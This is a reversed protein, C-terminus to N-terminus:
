QSLNEALIGLLPESTSIDFETTSNYLKESSQVLNAIERVKMAISSLVKTTENYFQNVSPQVTIVDHHGLSSNTGLKSFMAFTTNAAAELNRLEEKCKVLIDEKLLSEKTSTHMDDVGNQDHNHILTTCKETSSKFPSEGLSKIGLNDIETNDIPSYSLRPFARPLNTHKVDWVEPSLLDLCVTHVTLWRNDLMFNRSSEQRKTSSQNRDADSSYMSINDISHGCSPDSKSPTQVEPDEINWGHVKGALLSLGKCGDQQFRTYESDVRIIRPSSVKEQAWKPLRSMSFKFWSTASLAGEQYLLRPSNKSIELEKLEVTSISNKQCDVEHFKTQRTLVQQVDTRSFLRCNQEIKQLMKSSLLEPLRWIFICGDGDVSVIHRCDPLAIIANTPEGYGVAEAIVEGNIFDIIYITRNSYSCVLYSCSPDMEIKVPDGHDGKQKFSRILKGTAICYSNINNDKEITVAVEMMPDIAIGYITGCSAIQHSSRAIQCTLGKISIDHLMVTRDASCSLIKSGDGSLKVSTVAASHDDIRGILAFNRKVDYLHIKCDKGSSALLYHSGSIEGFSIEKASMNFSLSLVEADHVHQLCTYDSTLLNFVHLNGKCDGAILLKGDPSVTMCQLGPNNISLELTKQDFLDANVSMDDEVSGHCTTQDVKVESRDPHLAIDWLRVSGDESCTAFSVVPALSPLPMFECPLNKIDWICAAHSVLVCLRSVQDVNHINWIHLSHDGYVVVLKQEITFECAVADPLLPFSPYVVESGERHCNMNHDKNMQKTDAYRLIGAYKLSGITLLKVVGNNCACAILKDSVSLSFAKEVKLDVSDKISSGSNILYLIGSDTLAYFPFGEGDKYTRMFRKSALIPSLAAVFSCEKQGHLNISKGHMRTTTARSNAGISRSARITWLKLHKRGATVIFGSDSFFVSKVSSGSSCAKLKSVLIGAKWDWVCIYGDNPFGVSALLKGDPSFAMCSVGYQHGQLESLFSLNVMDWILVSPLNGSEGAAVFKGDDSVALCSFPKPIRDPVVLHSKKSSDTNLIIVVCGAIYAYSSTSINSALGNKNKTTLGIVEALTLKSIPPQLPNKLKRIPKM